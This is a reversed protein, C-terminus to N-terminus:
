SNLFRKWKEEYVKLTKSNLPPMTEKTQELTNNEIIRLFENFDTIFASLDFDKIGLQNFGAITDKLKKKCETRVAHEDHEEVWEIDIKSAFSILKKSKIHEVSLDVFQLQYPTKCILSGAIEVVSSGYERDQYFNQLFSLENYLNQFKLHLSPETSFNLSIIM